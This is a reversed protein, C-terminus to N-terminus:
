SRGGSIEHTDKKEKTANLIPNSPSSSSSKKPTREPSSPCDLPDSNFESPDLDEESSTTEGTPAHAIMSEGDRRQARDSDSSSGGANSSFSSLSETQQVPKQCRTAKAPLLLEHKSNDSLTPFLTAARPPVVDREKVIKEAALVLDGNWAGDGDLTARSSVFTVARPVKAVGTEKVVKEPPLNLELHEPDDGSSLRGVFLTAGKPSSVGKEKNQPLALKVPLESSPFLTAARSPGVDKEKCIKEHPLRLEVDSLEDEDTAFPRVLTASRSESVDTESPAKGDCVVDIADSLGDVRGIVDVKARELLQHFQVIGGRQGNVGLLKQIQM